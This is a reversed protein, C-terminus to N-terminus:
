RAPELYAPRTAHYPCLDVARGPAPRNAWGQDQARWWAEM